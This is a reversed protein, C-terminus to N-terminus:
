RTRCALLHLPPSASLTEVDPQDFGAEAMWSQYATLRYVAGHSTRLRLGLAYLSTSLQAARDAPVLVDIIALLGGPRLTPRLRRLLSRNQEHDFLHCVNAVLVLDYAAHPLPCTFMDAPLYDFRDRLGAAEVARRTAVTVAPLDLATVRAGPSQRAPAIL